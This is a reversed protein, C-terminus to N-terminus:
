SHQLHIKLKGMHQKVTQPIWQSKKGLLSLKPNNVKCASPRQRTRPTKTTDQPHRPPTETTNQHHRPPRDNRPHQKDQQHRPPREITSRHNNADQHCKPPTKVTNPSTKPTKSMNQHHKQPTKATNQRHERPTKTTNCPKADFFRAVKSNPNYAPNIKSNRLCIGLFMSSLIAHSVQTVRRISPDSSQRSPKLVAISSAKASILLTIEDGSRMGLSMASGGLLALSTYWKAGRIRKAGFTRPGLLSRRLTGFCTAPDSAVLPTQATFLTVLAGYGPWKLGNLWDGPGIREVSCSHQPPRPLVKGFGDDCNLPGKSQWAM